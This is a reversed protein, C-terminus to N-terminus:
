GVVVGRWSLGADEMGTADNFISPGEPIVIVVGPSFVINLLSPGEAIAAGLGVSIGVLMSGIAGFIM